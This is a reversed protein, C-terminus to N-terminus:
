CRQGNKERRNTETYHDAIVANADELTSHHSGNRKAKTEGPQRSQAQRHVNIRIRAPPAVRRARAGKGGRLADKKRAKKKNMKKPTSAEKAWKRTKMYDASKKGGRKKKKKRMVEGECDQTFPHKSIFSLPVNKAGGEHSKVRGREVPKGQRGPRM